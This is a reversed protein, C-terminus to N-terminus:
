PWVVDGSRSDHAKREIAGFPKLLLLSLTQSLPDLPLTPDEEAGGLDIEFSSAASAAGSLDCAGDSVV